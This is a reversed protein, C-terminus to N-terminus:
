VNATVVRRRVNARADLAREERVCDDLVGLDEELAELLFRRIVSPTPADEHDIPVYRGDELDMLVQVGARLNGPTRALLSDM